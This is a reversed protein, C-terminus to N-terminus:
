ISTNQRLIETIIQFLQNPTDIHPSHGANPIVVTKAQPIAALIINTEEEGLLASRGGRVILLTKRLKELSTCVLLGRASATTNLILELQPIEDPLAAAITELTGPQAFPYQQKLRDM